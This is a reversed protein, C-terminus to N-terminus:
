STVDSRLNSPDTPPHEHPRPLLTWQPRQVPPVETCKLPELLARLTLGWSHLVSSQTLAGSCHRFLVGKGKRSLGLGAEGGARRGEAPPSGGSPAARLNYPSLESECFEPPGDKERRLVPLPIGEDRLVRQRGGEKIGRGELDGIKFM